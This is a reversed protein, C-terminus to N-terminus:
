RCEAQQQCAGRRPIMKLFILDRGQVRSVVPTPQPVELYADKVDLALM